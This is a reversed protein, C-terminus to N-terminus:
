ATKGPKAYETYGRAAGLTKLVFRIAWPKKAAVEDRLVSESDDILEERANEAVTHLAPRRAVYEMLEPYSVGLVASARRADGSFHQLVETVEGNLKESQDLVAIFGPEPPMPEDSKGTAIARLRECHAAQEDTLKPKRPRKPPEPAYTVNDDPEEPAAPGLQFREKGITTLVFCIAWSKKAQVAERVGSEAEDILTERASAVESLLEPHSLIFDWVEDRRVTLTAAVRAVNGGSKALAAMIESEIFTTM